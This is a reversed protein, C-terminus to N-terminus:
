VELPSFLFGDQQYYEYSAQWTGNPRKPAGKVQVNRIVVPFAMDEIVLTRRESPTSKYALLNNRWTTSSEKQGKLPTILGSLTGEYGRLAQTIVVARSAGLPEHVASVEPMTANHERDDQLCVGSGDADFLWTGKFDVVGTLTVPASTKNNVLARIDWRHNGRPAYDKFAYYTSPDGTIPAGAPPDVQLDDGPVRVLLKGDRYIAWFDPMENRRWTLTADPRPYALALAGQYPPDLTADPAWTSYRETSAEVTSNPVAERNYSDWVDVQFYYRQGSDTVPKKPTWSDAAGSVIGSTDVVRRGSPDESVTVRWKAQPSNTPSSYTWAIPPTPDSFTNGPATFLVSPKARHTFSTGASWDSWVGTRSQARVRWWGTSNPTLGQYTTEPLFLGAENSLVQGSDWLPTTWNNSTNIQVQVRQLRTSGNNDNYDFTLYPHTTGIVRGQGPSLGTPKAPPTTYDIELEPQLTSGNAGYLQITFPATTTIIYGYFTAGSAVAQLDETVNFEFMHKGSLPGTTQVSVTKGAFVQPRTNYTVDAFGFSKGVRQISVSRTGTNTTGGQLWVRIRADQVKIGKVSPFPNTFYLYSHMVPGSSRIALYTRYNYFKFTPNDSRYWTGYRAKLRINYAMM